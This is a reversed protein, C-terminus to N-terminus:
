MFIVFCNSMVACPNSAQGKAQNSGAHHLGLHQQSSNPGMLMPSVLLLWLPRLPDNKFVILKQNSEPAIDLKTSPFRSKVRILFNILTQESTKVHVFISAYNNKAFIYELVTKRIQLHGM